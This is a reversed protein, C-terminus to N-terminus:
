REEEVNRKGFLQWVLWILLALTFLKDALGAM